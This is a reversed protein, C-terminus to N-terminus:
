QAYTNSNLIGLCIWVNKMLSTSRFPSVMFLGKCFILKLLWLLELVSLFISVTFYLQLTVRINLM